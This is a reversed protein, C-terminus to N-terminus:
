HQCGGCFFSARGGQVIRRIPKACVSCPEGSREYVRFSRQFNGLEGDAQVYDRLSSGGADIAELLVERVAVALRAARAPGISLALRRPSIAARFLAESAYINGVGVLLRQDMLATKVSVRRGALLAMLREGTFEPGLPEVGLHRLWRHGALEATGCLDLMGFRRPDVFRLLTGDDFAFTVHEHPGCPEGDFLLRGSMGLHLLLVQADDTFAEIFKARREFGLLARGALREALQPPLAFRLDARRQVLRAIRRGVLRRRLARTVTEVEPLEPLARCRM